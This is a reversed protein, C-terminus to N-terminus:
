AKDGPRSLHIRPHVQDAVPVPCTSKGDSSLAPRPRAAGGPPTGRHDGRRWRRDKGSHVHERPRERAHGRRSKTAHKRSGGRYPCGGRRAEAHRGETLHHEIHALQVNWTASIKPPQARYFPSPSPLLATAPLAKTPHHQTTADESRRRGRRRPDMQEPPRAIPHNPWTGGDTAPGPPLRGTSVLGRSPDHWVRQVQPPPCECIRRFDGATAPGATAWRGFEQRAKRASM